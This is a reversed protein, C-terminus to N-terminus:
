IFVLVIWKKNKIKRRPFFSRYHELLPPVLVIESALADVIRLEHDELVPLLISQADIHAGVAPLYIYPRVIGDAVLDFRGVPVLSQSHGEDIIM